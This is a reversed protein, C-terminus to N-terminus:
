PSGGSIWIILLTETAPTNGASLPAELSWRSAQLALAAEFEVGEVLNEELVTRELGTRETEVREVATRDVEMGGM